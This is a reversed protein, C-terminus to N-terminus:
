CCYLTVLFFLPMFTSRHFNKQGTSCTENAALHQPLQHCCPMNHPSQHALARFALQRNCLTYLNTQAIDRISGAKGAGHFATICDNM